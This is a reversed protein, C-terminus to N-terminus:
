IFTFDKIKFTSGVRVLTFIASDDKDSPLTPAPIVVSANSSGDSGPSTALLRPAPTATPFGAGKVRRYIVLFSVQNGTNSGVLEGFTKVALKGRELTVRTAPGDFDEQSNWSQKVSPAILVRCKEFDGAQYADLFTAMVQHPNLSAYPDPNAVDAGPNGNAALHSSNKDSTNRTEPENGTSVAQGRGSGSSLALGLGIGLGILGILLIIVMGIMTKSTLAPKKWDNGKM